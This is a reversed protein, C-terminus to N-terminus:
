QLVSSTSACLFMVLFVTFSQSHASFSSKDSYWIFVVNLDGYLM